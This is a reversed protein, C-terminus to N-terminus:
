DEVMKYLPHPSYPTSFSYSITMEKGLWRDMRGEPNQKGDPPWRSVIRVRDGAQWYSKIM